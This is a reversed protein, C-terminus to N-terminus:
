GLRRQREVPTPARTPATSWTSLRPRQGRHRDQRDPGRDRTPVNAVTVSATDTDTGGDDDNVTLTVTVTVAYSDDDAYTHAQDTFTTATNSTRLRLDTDASDDGLDVTVSWTDDIGADTFNVLDFTKSTHGRHREQQDPRRDIPRCTPSPSPPPRPTPPADDGKVTETVTVTM